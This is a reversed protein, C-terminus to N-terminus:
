LSCGCRNSILHIEKHGCSNCIYEIESVGSCGHNKLVRQKIADVSFMVGSKEDKFRKTTAGCIPCEGNQLKNKRDNKQKLYM